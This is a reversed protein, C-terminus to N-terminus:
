YPLSAILPIGIAKLLTVALMIVPREETFGQYATTVCATTVCSYICVTTAWLVILTPSQRSLACVHCAIFIELSGWLGPWGAVQTGEKYSMHKGDKGGGGEFNYYDAKSLKVLSNQITWSGPSYLIWQIIQQYRLLPRRSGCFLLSATSHFQTYLFTSFTTIIWQSIYM